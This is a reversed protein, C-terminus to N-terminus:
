IGARIMKLAVTRGLLCDEAKYVIGMGGHALESVVRYRRAIMGAPAAVPAPSSDPVTSAAVGRVASATAPLPSAPSHEQTPTQGQTSSALPPVFPETHENMM